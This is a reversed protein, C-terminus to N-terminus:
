RADRPGVEIIREATGGKLSGISSVPGGGGTVRVILESSQAVDGDRNFRVPGIIGGPTDARFLQDNVSRRTGDSRAVADLLTDAAQAAYVSFSEIEAGPQTRAFGAAFRRGDPPLRDIPVGQVSLFTGRVAPGGAQALGGPPGLGDPGLVDVADGFRTRLRGVLRAAPRSLFGTSVLIADPRRRAIREVLHRMRPGQFGDIRERGVVPMHLRRATRAFADAVLVSYGRYGDDVVVARRRGRDHAFRALAAGQLDDQPFVRVFNRRGTPYFKGLQGPLEVHPGSRTLDVYSNVASIMPLPSPRARNLEPLMAQTCGSNYSGIVAVVDPNRGFARGNAACMGPDFIGTTPLADNCAQFAIRFRGARFGRRRLEYTMAQAMQRASLRNDGLLPLDAAVLLDARGGGGAIV